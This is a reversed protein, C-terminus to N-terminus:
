TFKRFNAPRDNPSFKRLGCSRCKSQFLPSVLPNFFPNGCRPCAFTV